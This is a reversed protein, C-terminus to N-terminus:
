KCPHPQWPMSPCCRRTSGIRLVLDVVVAVCGGCGVVVVVCGGGVVVVGVVCCM